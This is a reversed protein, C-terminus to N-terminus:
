IENIHIYCASISQHFYSSKRTSTLYCKHHSNNLCQSVKLKKDVVDVEMWGYDVHQLKSEKNSNSKKNM